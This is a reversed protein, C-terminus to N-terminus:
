LVRDTKNVRVEKRYLEAKINNPTNLPTDNGNPVCSRMQFQLARQTFPVAASTVSMNGTSLETSSTVSIRQNINLIGAGTCPSWIVSSENFRDAKTYVQGRSLAESGSITM